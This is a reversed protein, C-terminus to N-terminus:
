NREFLFFFILFCSFKIKSKKPIVEAIGRRRLGLVKHDRLLFPFIFFISGM